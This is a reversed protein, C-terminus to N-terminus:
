CPPRQGQLVPRHLGRADLLRPRDPRRLPDGPRARRGEAGQDARVDGRLGLQRCRVPETSHVDLAEILLESVIQIQTGIVHYDGSSWTAQQRTKIAALDPTPDPDGPTSTTMAHPRGERDNAVLM